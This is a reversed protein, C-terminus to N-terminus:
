RSLRRRAVSAVMGLGGLLLAWTEPEPVASTIVTSSGRVCAAGGPCEGPYLPSFATFSSSIQLDAAGGFAAGIGNTDFFASASGGAGVDVDMLGSSFGVPTATGIGVGTGVLTNGLDDIAHGRLALFLTGNGAEILDGASGGANGTDFDNDAGAGLYINLWGGSFRVETASLSTVTYGGFVYTLECGTCLSGVALSNISDIKGYGTIVDGLALAANQYTQAVAFVSGEPLDVGDVTVAGAAGALALSAAAAIGRVFKTM